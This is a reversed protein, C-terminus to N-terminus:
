GGEVGGEEVGPGATGVGSLLDGRYLDVAQDLAAPTGVSVAREFTAADTEVAGAVVGIGDGTLQFLEGEIGSLARRMVFLTQRLATRASGPASDGWLLAALKERPHSQGPTLALYALLAQAKKTPVPVPAGPGIRAEFGGLLSLTLKSM